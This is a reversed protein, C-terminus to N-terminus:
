ESGNVQEETYIRIGTFMEAETDLTNRQVVDAPLILFVDSITRTSQSDKDIVL